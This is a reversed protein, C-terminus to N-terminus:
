LGRWCASQVFCLPSGALQMEELHMAGNDKFCEEMDFGIEGLADPSALTGAIQMDTGVWGGAAMSSWWEVCGAQTKCTSVQMAHAQSTPRATVDIVKMHKVQMRNCLINAALHMTSRTAMKKKGLGAEDPMEEDAADMALLEDGVPAALEEGDCDEAVNGEVRRHQGFLPTDTFDAYWNNEIAIRLVILMMCGCFPGLTEMESIWNFWRSAKQRSGKKHLWPMAPLADWLDQMAPATHALSDPSGKSLDELIFEHCCAFLPDSVDAIEWLNQAAKQLTAMHAAGAWPGKRLGILISGDLWAPWLGSDKVATKFRNYRVHCPDAFFVGRVGAKSFLWFRGPWGVAGCDLAEFLSRRDPGWAVELYRQGTAADELCSRRKHGSEAALAPPLDSADM